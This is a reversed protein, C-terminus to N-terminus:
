QLRANRIDVNNVARTYLLLAKARPLFSVEITPPEAQILANVGGVTFGIRHDHVGQWPIRALASLLQVNIEVVIGVEGNKTLTIVSHNNPHLQKRENEIHRLLHVLVLHRDVPIRLPPKSAM